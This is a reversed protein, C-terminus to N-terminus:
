NRNLRMYKCNPAVQQFGYKEYLGHADNTALMFGEVTALDPHNLIAEILQRSIGRGRFEEFVLVDCIYGLTAQDTIVRAFGVQAAGEMAVFCLSGEFSSRITELSRGDTWYAKQIFTSVREFDILARDNSVVIAM